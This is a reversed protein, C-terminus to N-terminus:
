EGIARELEARVENALKGLAPREDAPVSGLQKLLATLRGSRGLLDHRLSEVDEASTAARLSESATARLADLEDRLSM